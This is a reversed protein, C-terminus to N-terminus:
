DSGVLTNRGTAPDSAALGLIQSAQGAACPEVGHVVSQMVSQVPVDPYVIGECINCVIYGTCVFCLRCKCAHMCEGLQTLKYQVAQHISDPSAFSHM